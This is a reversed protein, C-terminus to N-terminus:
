SRRESVKGDYLWLYLTRRASGLRATNQERWREDATSARRLFIEQHLKTIQRKLQSFLIYTLIKLLKRKLTTLLTNIKLCLIKM